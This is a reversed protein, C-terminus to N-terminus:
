RIIKKKKLDDVIYGYTSEIFSDMQGCTLYIYERELSENNGNYFDTIVKIQSMFADKSYFDLFKNEFDGITKLYNLEYCDPNTRLYLRDQDYWDKKVVDIFYKDKEYKEHYIEVNPLAVAETWLIDTLLHIYYGLYFSGAENSIPNSLYFSFFRESNISQKLGDESFHTVSVPPDFERTNTLVGCDPAISGVIFAKFDTETLLPILKHAIRLHALWTAM